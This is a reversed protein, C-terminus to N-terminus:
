DFCDALCFFWFLHFSVRVPNKEGPKIEQVLGTTTTTTNDMM